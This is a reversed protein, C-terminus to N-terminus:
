EPSYTQFLLSITPPTPGRLLLTWPSYKREEAECSGKVRARGRAPMDRGSTGETPLLLCKKEPWEIRAECAM